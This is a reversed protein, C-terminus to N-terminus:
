YIVGNDKIYKELDIVNGTMKYNHECDSCDNGCCDVTDNVKTNIEGIENKMIDDVWGLLNFMNLVGEEQNLVLDFKSDLVDDLDKETESDLGKIHENSNIYTSQLRRIQQERNINLRILKWGERKLADMENKFRLDDIIAFNVGRSEKLVYNTWVNPDIERMKQGVDVYLNRNKHMQSITQEKGPVIEFHDSFLDRAVSKLKGAFSFIKFQPYRQQIIKSCFSKGSCMKGSIAIKVVM